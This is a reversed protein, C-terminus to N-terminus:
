SGPAYCYGVNRVTEILDGGLKGRLRRVYVDVVNTGPDFTYGWVAALLEERTCVEGERRMLHELLHFERSSLAIRGGDFAVTRRQLDLRAPGADLFRTTNTAQSQRLRSRIRAVLEALNFPKTVYDAAGLEFCKVKSDVDSLASLVLVEQTPHATLAQELFAFGDVGPLLLDLLVLEYTEQELLDLAAQGNTAGTTKFGCASLARALFGAIRPEDEVVLIRSM